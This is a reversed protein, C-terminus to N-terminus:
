LAARRNELTQERARSNTGYAFFFVLNGILFLAAALLLFTSRVWIERGTM